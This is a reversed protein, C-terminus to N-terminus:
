RVREKASLNPLSSTTDPVLRIEDKEPDLFWINRGAFYHTLEDNQAGMDHAWVIKSNDIDASNYVWSPVEKSKPNYHVIVVHRGPMSRLRMEIQARPYLKSFPSWPSCWTLPAGPNGIPLHFVPIAIRILLLLVAGTFVSRIVILGAPKNKPRWRRLKGLTIIILAYLAATLPAAYHPNAGAFLLSGLLTTGCVFLFLRTKPTLDKLGIGTPATGALVLFPTSLLPGLFFFWLMILKILGALIPHARAYQFQAFLWGEYYNRLIPHNYNPVPRLPMWPFGPDVFYTRINIVYPSLLPNGTTKWFYYLIFVATAALVLTLPLILRTLVSRIGGSRRKYSWIILALLIPISFFVTEYPRSNALIALGTGFILADRIRQHRKIRPLAGLVLAGGLAAVAGGWYSDAWYSCAGIRIAILLGGLLAWMPAVWAQLMWCTAACMLGVSLWVGWFPHKALIQGLAMFLGQAPYFVSCYTPKQIVTFSEFHKWLPHAHNTLRAHAFTDAMLLYSFEDQFLPYPIPLIPLMASRLALATGGVMIVALTRRRAISALKREIPAFFFSGSHRSVFALLLTLLMIGSEILLM